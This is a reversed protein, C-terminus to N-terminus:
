MPVTATRDVFLCLKFLSSLRVLPICSSGLPWDGCLLAENVTEREGESRVYIDTRGDTRGKASTKQEHTSM